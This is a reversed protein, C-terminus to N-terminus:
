ELDNLANDYAESIDYLDELKLQREKETFNDNALLAEIEQKIQENIKDTIELEFINSDESQKDEKAEPLVYKGAFPNVSNVDAM